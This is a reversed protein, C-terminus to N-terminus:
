RINFVKLGLGQGLEMEGLIKEFRKLKDHSLTVGNGILITGLRKLLQAM